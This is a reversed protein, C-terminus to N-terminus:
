RIEGYKLLSACDYMKDLMNVGLIDFKCAGVKEADEYEFGVILEEGNKERIMPMMDSLPQGSIVLASAHKGENKYTGELRVAQEFYQAYDGEYVGDKLTCWQSLAEPDNNLTWRLLSVEKEEELKDTVLGIPPINKTIINMENPSCVHHTRLVEKIVGCGQLRSFTVVQAVHEKKYLERLHEFVKHRYRTMFDCDIDPMSINDVTNRGENYFREFLLGYKIPDVTTINTLYSVICGGASGRATGALWGQNKYWNMFEQVILFYSSLNANSIVGLEYKIRDVYETFKDQEVTGIIKNKWGKRCLERLYEVDTMGNPVNFAPLNPKNLISYSECMDSVLNTNALLEESYLSQAEKPSLLNFSPQLLEEEPTNLLKSELERVSTSYHSAILVKYDVLDSKDIYLSRPAAVCLINHKKAEDLIQSAKKRSADDYQEVQLIFREGLNSKLEECLLPRNGIVLLDKTAYIEDATVEPQEHVYSNSSIKMLEKWGKLNRAVLTIYGYSSVFVKTGLIPKINNKTCSEYFQVSGALLDYDTICCSSIGYDALRKALEAPKTLAQLFSLHTHVNLPTYM